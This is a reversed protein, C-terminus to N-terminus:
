ILQLNFQNLRGVSIVDSAKWTNTQNRKFKLNQFGESQAERADHGADQHRQTLQILARWSPPPTTLDARGM